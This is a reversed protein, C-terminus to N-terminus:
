KGWAQIADGLITLKTGTVQGSFSPNSITIANNPTDYSEFVGSIKGAPVIFCVSKDEEKAM